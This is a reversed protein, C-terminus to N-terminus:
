VGDAAQKQRRHGLIGKPLHATPSSKERIREPLPFATPFVRGELVRRLRGPTPKPDRDWFGTPTAPLTAALYTIIAGALLELEPLRQRSAPAFVFQRAGGLMQKAAQPVQEVPWRDRYLAYLVQSSLSEPCALLLPDTFRPDHIAVVTFTANDPDVKVDRPVVNEWIEARIQVGQETWTVESDPPTAEIVNDGYTRALPRVFAGYEPPRGGKYEPLANRRGAFNSRLRVVFRELDGRLDQPTFGADFIPIEDDALTEATRQIVQAKLAKQGVDDPSARVIERIVAVRQGNVEGVRVILGFPIAPLAKGAAPHYYKIQWNQLAPRWFPTLDVAIPAFGGHRRPQWQGQELVYAEWDTLLEDTEWAGHRLGAWARRVAEDPLGIALLAPFLAGRSPLLCGTVIAWLLHLLALNTGIPLNIVAAILAQMTETVAQPM